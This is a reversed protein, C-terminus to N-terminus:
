RDVFSLFFFFQPYYIDVLLNLFHTRQLYLNLSSYESWGSMKGFKDDIKYANYFM